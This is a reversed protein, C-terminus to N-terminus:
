LHSTQTVLSILPAITIALLHKGSISWVIVIIFVVIILLQTWIFPMLRFVWTIITFWRTNIEHHRAQLDTKPFFVVGRNWFQSVTKFTYFARYIYDFLYLLGQLTLVSEVLPGFDVMYSEFAAYSTRFNSLIHDTLSATSVSAQKVENM